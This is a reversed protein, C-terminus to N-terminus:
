IAAAFELSHFFFFYHVYIDRLVRLMHGVVSCAICMARVVRTVLAVDSQQKIVVERKVTIGNPECINKKEM